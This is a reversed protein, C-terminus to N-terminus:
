LHAVRAGAARGCPALLVRVQLLLEGLGLRPLVLQLVVVRLEHMVESPEAHLQGQDRPPVESLADLLILGLGRVLVRCLPCLRGRPRGRLSVLLVEIGAGDALLCSRLPGAAAM